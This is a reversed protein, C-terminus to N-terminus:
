EEKRRHYLELGAIISTALGAGTFISAFMLLTIYDPKNDHYYTSLESM